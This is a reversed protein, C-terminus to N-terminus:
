RACVSSDLVCWRLPAPFTATLTRLAPSGGGMHLLLGFFFRRLGHVRAKFANCHRKQADSVLLLLLMELRLVFSYLVPLFSDLCFPKFACFSAEFARVSAICSFVPVNDMSFSFTQLSSAPATTHLPPAPPYIDAWTAQGDHKDTRASAVWRGDYSGQNRGAASSRRSFVDRGSVRRGVGALAARDGCCYGHGSIDFPAVRVCAQADAWCLHAAACSVPSSSVFIFAFWWDSCLLSLAANYTAWISAIL